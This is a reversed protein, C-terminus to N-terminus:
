WLMESVWVIYGGDKEKSLRRLNGEITVTIQHLRKLKGYNSQQDSGELFTQVNWIECRRPRRVQNSILAKWFYKGMGDGGRKHDVAELCYKCM